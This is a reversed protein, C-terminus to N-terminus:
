DEFRMKDTSIQVGGQWMVAALENVLKYYPHIMLKGKGCDDFVSQMRDDNNNLLGCVM